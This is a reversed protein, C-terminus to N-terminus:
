AVLNPQEKMLVIMSVGSKRECHAFENRENAFSM